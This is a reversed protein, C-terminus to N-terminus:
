AVPENCLDCAHSISQALHKVDESDSLIQLAQELSELERKSILVCADEPRNPDNLEVRGRSQAVQQYLNILEKRLRNVDLSQFAEDSM